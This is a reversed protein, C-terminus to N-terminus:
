GSGLLTFSFLLEFGTRVEGHIDTFKNWDIIEYSTTVLQSFQTWNWAPFFIINEAEYRASQNQFPRSRGTLLMEYPIDTMKDLMNICRM